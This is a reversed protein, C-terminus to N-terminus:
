GVRWNLGDSYVPVGFSSGGSFVAGFTNTNADSVYALAGAGSAVPNPLNAALYVTM